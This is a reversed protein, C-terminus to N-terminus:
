YLKRTPVPLNKIAEEPPLKLLDQVEKSQHNLPGQRGKKAQREARAQKSLKRTEANFSVILETVWPADPIDSTLHVGEGTFAEIRKDSGVTLVLQGLYAHGMGNQAILTEHIKEPPETSSAGKQGVIAVDVGPYQEVLAVTEEKSLQSLLVVLDAEKRIQRITRGLQVIGEDAVIGDINLRGVDFSASDSIGTVGIRLTGITKIIYPAFVSEATKASKLNGSLIAISSKRTLAELFSLGLSLDGDAINSADYGMTEMARFVTRAHLGAFRYDSSLMDGTDLLLVNKHLSRAQEVM